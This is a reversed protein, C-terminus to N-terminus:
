LTIEDKQGVPDYLYLFSACGNPKVKTPKAGVKKAVPEIEHAELWVTKYPLKKYNLAYRVPSLIRTLRPHRDDRSACVTYETRLGQKCPCPESHYPRLLPDRQVHKPSTDSELHCHDVFPGRYRYGELGPRSESLM